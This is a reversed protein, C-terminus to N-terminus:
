AQEPAAKADATSAADANASESAAADAAPVADANAPANESANESAPAEQKAPSAQNANPREIARLEEFSGKVNAYLARGEENGLQKRLFNYFRTKTDCAELAALIADIQKAPPLEELQQSLTQEVARRYADKRQQSRQGSSRRRRRKSSSQRPSDKGEAQSADNQAKEQAPENQTQDPQQSQENDQAPIDQKRQKKGRQERRDEQAQQENQAAQPQQGQQPKGDTQAQQQGQAVQPQSDAQQRPKDDRQQGQAQQPKDDRQQEQQQQPKDDRQQGNQQGEAANQASQKRPQPLRRQPKRRRGPLKKPELTTGSISERRYVREIGKERAMHIAFDFGTDKSIIFYDRSKKMKMFLLAVLQFDLADHKGTAVQIFEVKAPSAMVHKVQDIKLASDRSGYLVTVRDGERLNEVGDLGAGRVNEFDIFYSASRRKEKKKGM